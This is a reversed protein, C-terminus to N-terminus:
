CGHHHKEKRIEEERGDVHGGWLLWYGLIHWSSDVISVAWSAIFLATKFIRPFTLIMKSSDLHTITAYVSFLKLSFEGFCLPFECLGLPSTSVRQM